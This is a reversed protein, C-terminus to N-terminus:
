DPTKAMGPLAPGVYGIARPGPTGTPRSRPPPRRLIVVSVSPATAGKAITPPPLLAPSAPLVPTAAPASPAADHHVVSKRIVTEPPSADASPSYPSYPTTMVGLAALALALFPRATRRHVSRRPAPALSPSAILRAAPAARQPSAQREEGRRRPWSPERVVETTPHEPESSPEISARFNAPSAGRATRMAREASLRGAPPAIEALAAALQGVDGYREARDFRLCRQVIRELQAPVDRRAARLSPPGKLIQDYVEVMTEGSFPPSGTLLGYLVVGLSWIDARADAARASRMQEPAMYSPTGMAADTATISPAQSGATALSTIKSIGFDIVKVAESGDARLTLFINGPKLDRHIIGLSHAEALAECVQLVYSVATDVSLSGREQLLTRLDVGELYELVLYPEGTELVGADHVRAVHASRIRAAARGERLFREFADARVSAGPLLLKIAVREGLQLHTAEVVLGMGGRGLEREVRYKGALVNGPRASASSSIDTKPQREM